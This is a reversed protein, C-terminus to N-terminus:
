LVLRKPCLHEYLYLPSMYTQGDVAVQGLPAHPFGVSFVLPEEHIVQVLIVASQM